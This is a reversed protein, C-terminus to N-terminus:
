TGSPHDKFWTLFSGTPSGLGTADDYGKATKLSSDKNLAVLLLTGSSNQALFSPEHGDVPNPAVDHFQPTGNLHYLVPNAYGLPSGSSQVALAEMGSFLPSALSTGGVPQESYKGNSMTFNVGGDSATTATVKGTTEGVNLGTLPDALMSVDPEERDAKGTTATALSDPVVGKQFSPQPFYVSNGGGGGGQFKGASTDWSSGSQPYAVDGWGTEWEYQGQAGIGLATGGVGTVFPDSSPYSATPSSTANTAQTYDGDDGTSFNFTIGEAAAQQFIQEGAQVDNTDGTGEPSGWSNTVIDATRGSVIQQFANFFEADDPKRAAYYIIKADPAVAHVAEIDLTEEGWWGSALDATSAADYSAPLVQKFQGSGFQPLGNAASWRNVDGVITPSAYADVVAITVGKGTLNSGTIGYASRIQSATYGCLLQTPKGGDPAITDAGSAVRQGYYSSCNASGAAVMLKPADVPSSTTLGTVSSVYEGVNSPYKPQGTPALDTRGAHKYRDIKIGLTKEVEAITTSVNISQATQSLVTMGAQQVWQTVAQSADAHNAFTSNFDTPSLFKHYKSDGPTGVETAYTALNEPSSKAFWVTGTVVTKPDAHGVDNAPVAWKPPEWSTGGADTSTGDASTDTTKKDKGGSSAVVASVGAVLVLATVSAILVGKRSRRPGGGGGTPGMPGGPGSGGPGGPGGPGKPGGPGGPGGGYPPQQPPGPPQQGYPNQPPQQPPQGYPNPPQQPRGYPNPQQPQQPRGYPNPPQQPRGYPNPNPQQPPPPQQPRGYPNNPAPPPPQGYPNQPQQPNQPNQGHPPYSM